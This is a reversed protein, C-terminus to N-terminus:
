RLVLRDMSLITRGVKAADADPSAAAYHWGLREGCGACRADRCLYAGSTLTRLTSEARTPPNCGHRRAARCRLLSHAIRPLAAIADRLWAFGCFCLAALSKKNNEGEDLAVGPADHLLIAPASGGSDGWAMTGGSWVVNSCDTSAVSAGCVACAAVNRGSALAELEGKDEGEEGGEEDGEEAGPWDVESENLEFRKPGAAHSGAQAHEGEWLAGVAAGLSAAPLPLCHPEMLAPLLRSLSDMAAQLEGRRGAEAALEVRLAAADAAAAGCTLELAALRASLAALPPPEPSAPASDLAMLAAPEDGAANVGRFAGVLAGTLAGGVTAIMVLPLVVPLLLRRRAALPPPPPPLPPPRVVLHGAPLLGNVLRRAARAAAIPEAAAPPTLSPAGSGGTGAKALLAAAALTAAAAAAAAGAAVRIGVAPDRGLSAEARRVAPARAPPRSTPPTPPARGRPAGPRPQRQPLPQMARALLM